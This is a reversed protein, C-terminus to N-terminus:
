KMFMLTIFKLIPYKTMYKILISFIDVNFDLADYFIMMHINSLLFTLSGMVSTQPLTHFCLICDYIILVLIISRVLFSHNPYMTTQAGLVSGGETM